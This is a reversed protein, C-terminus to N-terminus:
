ESPTIQLAGNSDVELLLHTDPKPANYFVWRNLPGEIIAELLTKIARGGKSQQEPEAMRQQVAAVIQGGPFRLQLMHRERATRALEVLFKEAIGIVHEARLVDFVLISQDFQGLRGLLEARGLEQVFKRDVAAQFHARLTAYDPAGGDAARPLTSAGINSTFILVTDGFHATQGRGDTLRGDELVQLFKDLVKPHAKEIEDFLIVSFPQQRVRETLQGGQEFGVFGPPAGALRESAHEQQYESMDFRAYSAEDGFILEALAKALETKGVGTPGVFFFVGRPRSSSATRGLTIGVKATFLMDSVANIVFDQGIVRKRLAESAARLKAEDLSAWPDHRKGHRFREVLKRAHQVPLQEAVSAMQLARLDWISHGDTLDALDAAIRGHAEDSLEAGGEFQHLFCDFYYLREERAPLPVGILALHPNERYLWSPVATLQRAVLVLANRRGDAGTVAESLAKELRLLVRREAEEGHREPNAVLLDANEIVLAARQAREALVAQFAPIATAFDRLNGGVSTVGAPAANPRRRPPPQGLVVPPPTTTDTTDVAAPPETPPASGGVASAVIEEFRRRMPSTTTAGGVEDAFRMGVVLDFSAILAAGDDRFYDFLVEVLATRFHGEFLVADRTNGHLLVGRGRHLAVHFDRLWPASNEWDFERTM